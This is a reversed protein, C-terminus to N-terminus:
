NPLLNLTKAYQSITMKYSQIYLKMIGRVECLKLFDKLTKDEDVGYSMKSEVRVIEEVMELM